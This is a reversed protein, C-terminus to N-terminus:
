SAAGGVFPRSIFDWLVAREEGRCLLVRREEQFSGISAACLGTAGFHATVAELRAPPVALVFGYSMFALLWQVLDVGPPPTLADLDIAAGIGSSEALMVTTGVMGAM